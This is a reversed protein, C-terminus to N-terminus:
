EALLRDFEKEAYTMQGSGAALSFWDWTHSGSRDRDVFWCLARIQPEDRIEAFAAALWGPPYNQAPPIDQRTFTNTSTIYAPLGRTTSYANIVALWDGYVRFGAQAKGWGSRHLDQHPEQAKEQEGLAPADVWGPTHLAFGDPTVLSIGAALKSRASTDLAAVLTNMYNLWPVDIQYRHTGDQGADWPRVPGVLVRVPPNESRIVQVANDTHELPEGYGNLM